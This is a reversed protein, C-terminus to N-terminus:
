AQLTRQFVVDIQGAHINGTAVSMKTGAPAGASDSISQCSYGLGEMYSVLESASQGIERLFSDSLECVIVPACRKLTREMGKLAHLEFGEIDLKIFDPSVAHAEFIDDLALVLTHQPQTTPNARLTAAGANNYTPFYIEASGSEQGAAVSLILTNSCKNQWLHGSLKSLNRHSPEICLVRGHAGVLSSALLSFYGINAGVDVVTTNPHISTRMVEAVQEDWVGHVLLNREIVDILGVTMRAGHAVRREVVFPREAFFAPWRKMKEAWWEAQQESLPLWRLRMYAIQRIMFKIFSKM